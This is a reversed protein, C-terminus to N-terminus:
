HRALVDISGDDRMVALWQGNPSASIAVVRAAGAFTERVVLDGDTVVAHGDEFGFVFGAGTSGIATAGVRLPEPLDIQEDRDLAFAYALPTPKGDPDNAAREYLFVARAGGIAAARSIPLDEVHKVRNAHIFDTWHSLAHDRRVVLAGEGAALFVANHEVGNARTRHGSLAVFAAETITGPSPATVLVRDEVWDAYQVEGRWDLALITRSRRLDTILLEFVNVKPHVVTVLREGSADVSAAICETPSRDEAENARWLVIKRGRDYIAVVGGDNWVAVRPPPAFRDKSFADGQLHRRADVTRAVTSAAPQTTPPKPPTSPTPGCGSAVVVIVLLARAGLM